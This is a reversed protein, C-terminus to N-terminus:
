AAAQVAEAARHKFTRAALWADLDSRRYLIRRDGVRVYPPGDDSHGWIQLTRTTVHLLAATQKQDLFEDTTESM